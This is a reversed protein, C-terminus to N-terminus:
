RVNLRLDSIATIYNNDAQDCLVVDLYYIGKKMKSSLISDISINLLIGGPLNENYVKEHRVNYITVRITKDKIYDQISFFVDKGESTYSFEEDQKWVYRSGDTYTCTWSILDVLNYAKQDIIGITNEDPFEGTRAFTISNDPITIEGSLEIQLNLTDGYNWHYGVVNGEQDYDEYPRNYEAITLKQNKNTNSPSYDAPLNNYNDFMNM